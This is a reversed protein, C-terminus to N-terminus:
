RTPVTKACTCSRRVWDWIAHIDVPKPIVVAGQPARAPSSTSIVIPVKSLVPDRKMREFLEEGSMVPMRLDLIVLCPSRAQLVELAAAGDAALMASCGAMEVVERLSERVDEEDDVILVCEETAHPTNM